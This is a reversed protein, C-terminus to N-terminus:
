RRARPDASRAEARREAVVWRAEGCALEDGPEAVETVRLRRGNVYVGNTSGLDAVELEGKHNTLAVHNRSVGYFEASQRAVRLHGDSGLILSVDPPLVFRALHDVLPILELTGEVPRPVEDDGLFRTGEGASARLVTVIVTGESLKNSPVPQVGLTKAYPHPPDLEGAARRVREVVAGLEVADWLSRALAVSIGPATRGTPTALLAVAERVILSLARQSTLPVVRAYTQGAWRRARAVVDPRRVLLGMIAAVGAGLFTAFWLVPSM